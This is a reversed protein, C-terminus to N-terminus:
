PVLEYGMMKVVEIIRSEDIASEDFTVTAENEPYLVSVSEVGNQMKLINNITGACGNCTMGTVKFRKTAM